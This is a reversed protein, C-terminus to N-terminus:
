SGALLAGTATTLRIKRALGALIDQQVPSIRSLEQELEERNFMGLVVDTEAVAATARLKAHKDFFSTEGIVQGKELIKLTVIGGPTNKKIRVRGEMILLIYRAESGEEFISQGQKFTLRIRVWRTINEPLKM